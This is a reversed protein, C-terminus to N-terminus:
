RDKTGIMVLSFFVELDASPIEADLKGIAERASNVRAVTGARTFRALHDYDAEHRAQQLDIFATAVDKLNQNNRVQDILEKRHQPGPLPGRGQASWQAATAAQVAPM